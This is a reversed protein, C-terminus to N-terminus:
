RLSSCGTAAQKDKRATRVHELSGCYSECGGSKCRAAAQPAAAMAGFNCLGAIGIGIALVVWLGWVQNLRVGQTADIVSASTCRPGSEIYLRAMRHTKEPLELQVAAQLYRRLLCCIMFSRRVDTSNAAM